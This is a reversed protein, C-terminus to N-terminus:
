NKICVTIKKYSTTSKIAFDLINQKTKGQSMLMMMELAKSIKNISEKDETSLTTELCLLLKSYKRTSKERKAESRRKEM